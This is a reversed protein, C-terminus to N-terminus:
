LPFYYVAKGAHIEYDMVRPWNPNILQTEWNKLDLQLEKIIKPNSQALNYQEAQDTDLNYLVTQQALDDQILKWKGKRIAKHYESRWYLAEHPKQHQYTSDLLYPMLNVGDFKRDNPLQVNALATATAFIDLASIPNKYVKGKPLKGKWQMMFPVRIGGEFNTFKGGKLPSNDAAGTYTAGGNDSLFVVLTNEELNLQKLQNMISGVADDLAHIMAYYIRKEPSSIHAYQDYYEKTAQFPTHPASFPVYVFFPADKHAAIWTNTEEAIRTTLYTDEEIIQDNKRIACNGKRGKGWIHPDSFDSLKQNIIGKKDIPAYLSFAEYFGYHYDFGRNIPIATHNYGMHWKGIAATQYGKTKLLESLTFETPPLGQQQMAEFSPIAWDDHQAVKWDGTNLLNAYVFYEIRNKPYREHINIEFGFRQQYRGTILGARSPACIPSSIYGEQFTVGNAGIADINQTIVNKGGYRSVDMLGLDDALIVVINPLPTTDQHSQKQGLFTKRYDIKKQNFVINYKPNGLPWFGFVLLPILFSFFLGLRKKSKPKM